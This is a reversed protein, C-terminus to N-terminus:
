PWQGSPETEIALSKEEEIAVEEMAIRPRLSQLKKLNFCPLLAQPTTPRGDGLAALQALLGILQPGSMGRARLSAISLTGGRKALRKGHSDELCPVHAYAPTHLGLAQQLQIQRFTSDVLDAGRLVQTIGQAADDVVVALQYSYQNNRCLVFDKPYIKPCLHQPGLVADEFRIHEPSVCRWRLSPPKGPTPSCQGTCSPNNEGAHPAGLAMDKRSCHCTFCLGTAQLRQLAQAYLNLRQSQLLPTEDWSLGLFRLDEMLLEVYEAKCRQGDLDEIRLLWHGKQQKAWLWSLLAVFANGLHM